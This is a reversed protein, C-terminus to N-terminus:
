AFRPCFTSSSQCSLVPLLSLEGLSVSFCRVIPASLVTYASLPFLITLFVYILVSLSTQAYADFIWTASLFFASLKPFREDFGCASGLSGNPSLVNM